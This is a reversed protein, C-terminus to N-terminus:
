YFDILSIIQDDYQKLGSLYVFSKDLLDLRNSQEILQFNEKLKLALLKKIQKMSTDIEVAKLLSEIVGIYDGQSDLITADNLLQKIKESNNDEQAFVVRLNQIILFVILIITKM